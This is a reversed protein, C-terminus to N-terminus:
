STSRRRTTATAASGTAKASPASCCPVWAPPACKNGSWSFRRPRARKKCPMWCKRRAAAPCVMARALVRPCPPSCTSGAVAAAAAVYVSSPGDDFTLAFDGANVCQTSVGSPQCPGCDSACASCTEDGTCQGDGCVDEDVPPACPGCDFPCSACDEGGGDACVSDGCVVTNCDCDIACNSCDETDGCRADGCVDAPPVSSCHEPTTGCWGYQSCCQGSPCVANTPSNDACRGDVSVNDNGGDGGGGDGGGGGCSGCDAACTTCTEGNNCTGDGCWPATPGCGALQYDRSASHGTGYVCEDVTVFRYGYSRIADIVRPVQEVSEAIRDHALHLISGPNLQNLGAIVRDYVGWANQWDVTDLNWYVACVWEWPVPDAALTM